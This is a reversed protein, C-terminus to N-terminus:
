ESSNAELRRAESLASALMGCPAAVISLGIMLVVFTFIRGGATIPYVDGYGVTTLTAVAWWLSHFVSTFAEPQAEHEFYYIGVASLYLVLLTVCTFLVLEERVLKLALRLRRIASSYRVLKFIRFLRLLRLSRLARLDIGQAVYFPLVALLDVLGFFSLAYRLPKDAVALRLLYEASFVAVTVVEVVSLLGRIRPSLDPLTELSFTVLSLVILAQITLDFARELPTEAREVIEKIRGKILPM